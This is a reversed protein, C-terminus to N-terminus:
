PQPAPNAAPTQGAGNQRPPRRGLPPPASAGTTTPIPAATADATPAPAPTPPTAPGKATKLVLVEQDDHQVLVVRTASVEKVQLGNIEKGESVVRVKNGAKELLFAFKGEPVLTTGTLVFQDKRMSPKPPEPPPPIPAPRRTVVFVPRLTTELYTDPAPLRFPDALAPKTFAAPALAAEAVPWQWRRGWDTETGIGTALGGCLLLWFGAEVRRPTLLRSM